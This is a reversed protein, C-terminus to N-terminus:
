RCAGISASCRATVSKHEGGAGWAPTRVFFAGKARRRTVFFPWPRRAATFLSQGRRDNRNQKCSFAM